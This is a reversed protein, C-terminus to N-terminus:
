QRWERWAGGAAEPTVLVEFRGEQLAVPACSVLLVEACGAAVLGSGQADCGLM